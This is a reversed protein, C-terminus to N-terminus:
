PIQACDNVSDPRGHFRQKRCFESAIGFSQHPLGNARIDAHGCVVKSMSRFDELLQDLSVPKLHDARFIRQISSDYLEEVSNGRRCALESWM